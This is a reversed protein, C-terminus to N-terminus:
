IFDAGVNEYYNLTLVSKGDRDFVIAVIDIRFTEFINKLKSHKELYLSAIRNIQFIKNKNVMGEPDGFMDGTKAKVEVFALVHGKSAIIDIEGWRVSFNTEIIQWGNKVLYQCAIKEGLNGKNRNQTKM